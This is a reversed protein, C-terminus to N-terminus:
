GDDGVPRDDTEHLRRLKSTEVSSGDLELERWGGKIGGAEFDPSRQGVAAGNYESRLTCQGEALCPAQDLGLPDVREPQGGSEKVEKGVYLLRPERAQMGEYGAAVYDGWDLGPFNELPKWLEPEDITVARGLVRGETTAM